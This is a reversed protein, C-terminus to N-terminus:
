INIKKLGLFIINTEVTLNKIKMKRAAFLSVVFHGKFVSFYCLLKDMM